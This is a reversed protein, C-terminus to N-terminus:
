GDDDGRGLWYDVFAALRPDAPDATRLVRRWAHAEVGDVGARRELVVAQGAATLAPDPPGALRDRLAVLAAPPRRAGHVVIVNGRALLREQAPELQPGDVARGPVAGGTASPAVGAEDRADFFRVLGIVAALGIAVAAALLAARRLPGSRDGRRRDM